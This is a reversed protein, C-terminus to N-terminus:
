GWKAAILKGKGSPQLVTTTMVQKPQCMTWRCVSVLNTRTNKHNGSGPQLVYARGTTAYTKSAAPTSVAYVQAGAHMSKTVTQALNRQVSLKLDVSGSWAPKVAQLRRGDDQDM